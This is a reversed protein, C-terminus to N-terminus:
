AGLIDRDTLSFGDDTLFNDSEGVTLVTHAQKAKDILRQADEVSYTGADIPDRHIFGRFLGGAAVQAPTFLSLVLEILEVNNRKTTQRAQITDIDISAATAGDNFLFVGLKRFVATTTVSGLTSLAGLTAGEKVTYTQGAREIVIWRPYTPVGGSDGTDPQTAVDDLIHGWRFAKAGGDQWAGAMIANDDDLYAVAGGACDNVTIGDGSLLVELIWNDGIDPIEILRLVPLENADDWRGDVAGLSLQLRSANEDATGNNDIAEFRWSIDSDDLPDRFFHTPNLVEAVIDKIGRVTSPQQARWRGVLASQRSAVTAGAAIPEGFAIEWEDLTQEATHPFIEKRLQTSVDVAEQLVKGITEAISGLISDPRRTTAGPYLMGLILDRYYEMSSPM